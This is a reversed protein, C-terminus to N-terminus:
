DIISTDAMDPVILASRNSEGKYTIANDFCHTM